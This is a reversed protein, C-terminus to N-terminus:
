YTLTGKANISLTEVGSRGTLTVIGTNATSGTLKAFVVESLGSAAIGGPFSISQDVSSNRTAYNSGEFVVVSGPFLKVGWASDAKGSQASAQAYRIAEVVGATAIELNEHSTVNSYSTESLVAFLVMIGIVILLEVLSFGRSQCSYRTRCDM